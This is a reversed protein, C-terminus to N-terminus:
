MVLSYKRKTTPTTEYEMWEKIKAMVIYILRRQCTTGDEINFDIVEGDIFRKPIRLVNAKEAEIWLANSLFTDATDIIDQDRGHTQVSWDFLLGRPLNSGNDEFQSDHTGLINLLATEDPDDSTNKDKNFRHDPDFDQEMTPEPVYIGKDQLEKRLKSREYTLLVFQPCEGSEIFQHFQAVFNLSIKKSIPNLRTWPKYALLMQECFVESLPM